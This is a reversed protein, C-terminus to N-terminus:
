RIRSAPMMSRARSRGAPASASANTFSSGSPALMGADSELQHMKMPMPMLQPHGMRWAQSGSEYGCQPMPPMMKREVNVVLVATYAKDRPNGPASGSMQIPMAMVVNGM